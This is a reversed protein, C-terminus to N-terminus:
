VDFSTWIDVVPLVVTFTQASTTGATTTVSLSHPGLTSTTSITYTATFSTSTIGSPAGFTMGSFTNISVSSDFSTGTFTMTGSTGRIALGPSIATLTPTLTASYCTSANYLKIRPASSSYAPDNSLHDFCLKSPIDYSFGGPGNGGTVDPGIPPWAPTGWPTTWFSPQGSLFFSAPLTHSAPIPNGSIRPIGTTPVESGEWRVAANVTDYNGWRMLSSEVITDSNPAGSATGDGYGLFYIAPQNVDQTGYPISYITSGISATGLVNGIVNNGRSTARFTIAFLYRSKTAQDDIGTFRNRFLTALSAQGHLYDAYVGNNQNGELLRQGGGSSHGIWHIAWNCNSDRGGADACGGPTTDTYFSGYGYNYAEVCGQCAGQIASTCSELINNIMLDDGAAFHELGYSQSNSTISGYMYSDRVECHASQMFRIHARKANLTRVNKVWCGYCDGFVINQGDGGSFQNEITLDELGMGFGSSANTRGWGCIAPSMDSRWEMNLGPTITVQTSSDVSVVKVIQLQTRFVGGDATDHRGPGGGVTTAFTPVFDSNIIGGDDTNPDLQDLYILRGAAMCGTPTVCGSPTGSVTLQTTGQMYGATWNTAWSVGDLVTNVTGLWEQNDCAGLGVWSEWGICGGQNTGGFVLITSDPGSGRLTVNDKKIRIGSFGSAATFTYTGAALLVYQNAGCANIANNIVTVDGAVSATTLTSGCQTRTTPIGGPVGVNSWDIARSSNLIGTWAPM